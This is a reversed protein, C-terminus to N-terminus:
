PEQLHQQSGFLSFSCVRSPLESVESGTAEKCPSISCSPLPCFGSTYRSSPLQVIHTVFVESDELHTVQISWFPWEHFAKHSNITIKSGYPSRWADQFAFPHRSFTPYLEPETEPLGKKGPRWFLKNVHLSLWIQTTNQQVLFVNNRPPLLTFQFIKRLDPMELSQKGCLHTIKGMPLFYWFIERHPFTAHSSPSAPEAFM